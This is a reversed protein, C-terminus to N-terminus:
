CTVAFRIGPHSDRRLSKCHIVCSDILVRYLLTSRCVFGSVTGMM